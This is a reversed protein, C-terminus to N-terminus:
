RRRGQTGEEVEAERAHRGRGQPAKRAERQRRSGQTGGEPKRLRAHRGRGQAAKRAEESM